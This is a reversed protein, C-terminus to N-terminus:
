LKGQPFSIEMENGSISFCCVQQGDPFIGTNIWSGAAPLFIYDPFNHLLSTLHRYGRVPLHIIAFIL